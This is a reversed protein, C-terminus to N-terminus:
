KKTPDGETGIRGQEAAFASGYERHLARWTPDTTLAEMAQQVTITDRATDYIMRGTRPDTAVTKRGSAPDTIMKPPHIASDLKERMQTSLQNVQIPAENVERAVRQGIQPSTYALNDLVAQQSAMAQVAANVDDGRLKTIVEDKMAPAMSIGVEEKGSAFLQGPAKGKLISKTLRYDAASEADAMNKYREEKGTTRDTYVYQGSQKMKHLNDAEALGDSYGFGGVDVRGAGEQGSKLDAMLRSAMTRNDGAVANLDQVAKSRADMVIREKELGTEPDIYKQRTNKWATSNTALGRFASTSAVQYGGTRNMRTIEAVAKDREGKNQDGAFRSPARKELARATALAGGKGDILAHMKDDDQLVAMAEDTKMFESSQQYTRSEIASAMGGRRLGGKGILASRQIGRNMLGAVGGSRGKFYNANKAREGTEQFKRGRYKKQRDFLGKSRDNVMGTLTGFAGGAFKFMAPIFFYPGVYATLILLPTIFDPGGPGIPGPVDRVLSAFSRGVGILLMILPFLLLLKSFSGWWLKWLKDNGPFIWALIALPALVMFAILLLQRLALAIVAILLVIAAVFLYSIIIGIIGISLVTGAVIGTTFVAGEGAKPDFLSSLGTEPAGTFAQSVLGLIGRGVDNTLIILFQTIELSLAIFLVAIVVRPLAKKVAYASVLEFGMATSLIMILMIPVLIIYALNRLRAWTLEVQPAEYYARPLTLLRILQQDVERLFSNALKLAPCLIWSFEGGNKECSEGTGAKAAALAGQTAEELTKGNAVQTAIDGLIGPNSNVASLAIGPPLQALLNETNALNILTKCEYRGNQPEMDFGTSVETGEGHDATYNYTTNGIQASKGPSQGAPVEEICRALSVLLRRSREKPGVVANQSHKKGELTGRIKAELDNARKKQEESNGMWYNGDSGDNLPKYLADKFQTETMGVFALAQGLAISSCKVRGDDAQIEHGVAFEDNAEEYINFKNLEDASVTSKLREHNEICKLITYMVTRNRQDSVALVDNDTVAYTVKTPLLISFFSLIITLLFLGALVPPKKSRHNSLKLM